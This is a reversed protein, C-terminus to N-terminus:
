ITMRGRSWARTQSTRRSCDYSGCVGLYASLCPNSGQSGTEWTLENATLGIRGSECREKVVVRASGRVGRECLWVGPRPV